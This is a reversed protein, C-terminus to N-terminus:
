RRRIQLSELDFSAEGQDARLECSIELDAAPQRLDFDYTLGVWETTGSLRKNPASRPPLVLEGRHELDNSERYPFWDWNVGTNLKRRSFVRFGAGSWENKLNGTVAQIRVRGTIQYRGGELWVTTWWAGASHGDNATIQLSVPKDQTRKFTVHGSVTRSKWDSLRAVGTQDFVLMTKIDRLQEDLSKGRRVIRQKLDQVPDPQLMRKMAAAFGGSQPLYPAIAAALEDVRRTLTEVRCLNTMLQSVRDLYRRRCEPLQLVSDAVLDKAGPMIPGEPKWFMQDMGHPFFVFRGSDLDHFVRYNNRNLAYGDWNWLLADLAVFTIFRDLDLRQELRDLRNTLNREKAAAVLVKLDSVDDPDDGSNVFLRGTIDRAFGGDYLNGKVNNFYHKLFQKNWGETLVYLGLRRGNLSVTAYGARPVPVGAKEFLERCLKDTIYSPDQVSNNLSIKELGHFRQGKALKDFNLTLGPKDEVPRFSGAAGKLHVAVNTYVAAGERVTAPVAVRDGPKAERSWEYQRLIDMGKRPIAIELQLVSDNTFFSDDGTLNKGVAPAGSACCAALAVAIILVPKLEAAIYSLEEV